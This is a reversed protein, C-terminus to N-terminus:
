DVATCVCEIRKRNELHGSRFWLRAKSCHLKYVLRREM